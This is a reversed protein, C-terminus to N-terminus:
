KGSNPLSSVRSFGFSFLRYEPRWEFWRRDVVHWYLWRSPSVHMLVININMIWNVGKKNVHFLYACTLLVHSLSSLKFHQLQHWPPFLEGVKWLFKSGGDKPDSFLCALRSWAQKAHEKVSFISATRKEVIDTFQIPSCPTVQFAKTLPVTLQYLTQGIVNALSKCYRCRKSHQWVKRGLKIGVTQSLNKHPLKHLYKM